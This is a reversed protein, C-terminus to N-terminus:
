AQPAVKDKRKARVSWAAAVVSAAAGSVVAVTEADVIGKAVFYGGVTALLARVIGKVEDSNM